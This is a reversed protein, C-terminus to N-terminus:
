QEILDDCAWFFVVHNSQVTIAWHNHCPHCTLTYRHSQLSIEMVLTEHLMVIVTAMVKHSDCVFHWLLVNMLFLLSSNSHSTVSKMLEWLFTYILIQPCVLIWLCLNCTSRIEWWIEPNPTTFLAVVYYYFCVEVCDRCNGGKWLLAWLLFSSLTCLLKAM